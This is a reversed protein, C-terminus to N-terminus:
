NGHGTLFKIYDDVSDRFANLVENETEGHFSVSDSIGTIHGVFIGDEFDQCVGM